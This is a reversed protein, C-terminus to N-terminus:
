SRGIWDYAAALGHRNLVYRQSSGDYGPFTDIHGERHLTNLADYADFPTTGRGLVDEIPFSHRGDLEVNAEDIRELASGLSRPTVRTIEPVIEHDNLIALQAEVISLLAPLRKSDRHADM